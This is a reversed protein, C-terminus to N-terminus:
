SLRKVDIAAMKALADLVKPDSMSEEGEIILMESRRSGDSKVIEVVKEIRKKKNNKVLWAALVQLGAISVVVLAATALEGHQPDKTAGAEFAIEAEPFQRQLELKELRGLGFIRIKDM